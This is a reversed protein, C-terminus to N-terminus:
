HPGQRRRERDLELKEHREIEEDEFAECIIAKLEDRIKMHDLCGAIWGSLELPHMTEVMTTVAASFDEDPVGDSARDLIENAIGEFKSIKKM